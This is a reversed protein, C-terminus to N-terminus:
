VHARGIEFGLAVLIAAIGIWLAWDFKRAPKIRVPERGQPNLRRINQALYVLTQALKLLGVGLLCLLDSAEITDNVMKGQVDELQLTKINVSNLYLWNPNENDQRFHM